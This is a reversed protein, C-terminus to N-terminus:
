TSMARLQDDLAEIILDHEIQDGVGSAAVVGVQTAGIRIPAAGGNFAFESPSLQGQGVPDPMGYKSIYHAITLSAKDYNRVVAAKRKLWRDNDAATGSLAAQFVHQEGIWVAVTVSLAQSKALDIVRMGLEIANAHTFTRFRLRNDQQILLELISETM